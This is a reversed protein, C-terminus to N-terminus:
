KQEYTYMNLDTKNTIQFFFHNYTLKTCTGAHRLTNINWTSCSHQNPRTKRRPKRKEHRTTLSSPLNNRGSSM